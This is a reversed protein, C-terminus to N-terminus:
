ARREFVSAGRQFLEARRQRKSDGRQSVPIENASRLEENASELEEATTRLKDQTAKLEQELDQNWAALDAKSSVKAAKQHKHKKEEALAEFVVLYLGCAEEKPLPSITVRVDLPHGNQEIQIDKKINGSDPRMKRITAILHIKLGPRAMEFANYSRVPGHARELYKHMRGHIYRIDGNADVIMAPPTHDDLLTREALATIDM